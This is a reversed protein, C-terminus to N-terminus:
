EYEDEKKKPTLTLLPRSVYVPAIYEVTCERPDTDMHETRVNEIARMQDEAASYEARDWNKARVKYLALSRITTDENM